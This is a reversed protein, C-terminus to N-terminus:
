KVPRMTFAIIVTLAILVIIAWLYESIWAPLAAIQTLSFLLYFLVSSFVLSSFLSFKLDSLSNFILTGMLAYFSVVIFSENIEM